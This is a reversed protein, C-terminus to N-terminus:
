VAPKSAYPVAGRNLPNETEALTHVTPISSTLLLNNPETFGPSSSEAQSSAIPSSEEWASFSCLEGEFTHDDYLLTPKTFPLVNEDFAVHRSIYIRDTAPYFCKYGKHKYSYGLFVCPLSKPELKNTRYDGLFPFCKCGLVRLTGYDPNQQYLRFFPSDMGLQSSLLRNILFVITSFCEVWFWPPLRTHFMM